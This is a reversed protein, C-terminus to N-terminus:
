EEILSEDVIGFDDWISFQLIKRGQKELVLKFGAKEFFKIGASNTKFLEIRVAAINQERMREIYDKLLAKGLGRGRFTPNVFIFIIQSIPKFNKSTSIPDIFSVISGGLEGQQFILFVMLEKKQFRRAFDPILDLFEKCCLELAFLDAGKAERIECPNENLYLAEIIFSM